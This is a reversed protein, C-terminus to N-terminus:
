YQSTELGYRSECAHPVGGVTPTRTYPTAGRGYSSGSKLKLEKQQKPQKTKSPTPQQGSKSASLDFILLPTLSQLLTVFKLKSRQFCLESVDKNM